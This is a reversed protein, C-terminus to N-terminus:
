EAEVFVARVEVYELDYPRTPDSVADKSRYVRKGEAYASMAQNRHTTYYYVYNTPEIRYIHYWDM